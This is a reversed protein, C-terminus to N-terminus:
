SREQAAQKPVALGSTTRRRALLNARAAGYWASILDALELEGTTVGEGKVVAGTGEQPREKPETM